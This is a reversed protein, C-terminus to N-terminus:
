TLSSKLTAYPPPAVDTPDPYNGLPVNPMDTAPPYVQTQVPQPYAYGQPYTTSQPITTTTVIHSPQNSQKNTVAIAICVTIGIIIFPLSSCFLCCIFSGFYILVTVVITSSSSQRRQRVLSDKSELNHTNDLSEVCQIALICTLIVLISIWKVEMLVQLFSHLKPRFEM